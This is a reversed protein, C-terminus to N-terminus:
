ENAALYEGLITRSWFPLSSSPGGRPRTTTTIPSTTRPRTPTAPRTTHPALVRVGSNFVRAICHGIKGRSSCSHAHVGKRVCLGSNGRM